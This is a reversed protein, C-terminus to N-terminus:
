NSYKILRGMVGVTEMLAVIIKQYRQIEEMSLTCDRRDKLWKEAPQYAHGRSIDTTYHKNINNIYESITM